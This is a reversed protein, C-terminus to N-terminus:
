GFLTAIWALFQRCLVGEIGLDGRAVAEGLRGPQRRSALWAHVEAKRAKAESFQRHEPPIDAIYKRALPWAPEDDPIMTSVFDELQGLSRNNPMLWVGVRPTGQIIAGGRVPSQPLVVDASKLRDGVSQWRARPADNADLVIGLVERGPAKMEVTVARLLNNVGKKDVIDDHSLVQTEAMKLMHGVVHRDDQGEVLLVRSGSQSSAM